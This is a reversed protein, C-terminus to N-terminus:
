AGTSLLSKIIHIADEMNDVVADSMEKVFVSDHVNNQEMVTIITKGKGYAYGMEAISGQSVKKAGLFNTLVVDSMDIDLFDKAVIMKPHSFFHNYEPEPMNAKITRQKLEALHGEHRMPSLVNIGCSALDDTIEKRWGFRAQKYTMGTIPGSLYVAKEM